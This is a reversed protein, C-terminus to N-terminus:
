FAATKGTGTQALGVLDRGQLLEPIAMSQIPTPTTLGERKLAEMLLDDLDFSSFLDINSDNSLPEGGERSPDASASLSPTM